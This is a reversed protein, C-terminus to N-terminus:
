NKIYYTGAKDREVLGRKLLNGLQSSICAQSKGTLEALQISKLNGHTRLLEVLQSEAKTLKVDKNSPQSDLSPMQPVPLTPTEGVQKSEANSPEQGLGNPQSSAEHSIARPVQQAQAVQKQLAELQAKLQDREARLASYLTPWYESTEAEERGGKLFCYALACLSIFGLVSFVTATGVGYLQTIYYSSSFGFVLIGVREVWVVLRV